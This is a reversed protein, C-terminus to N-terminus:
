LFLDRRGAGRTSHEMPRRAIVQQDPHERATAVATEPAAGSGQGRADQPTPTPRPIRSRCAPSRRLVGRRDSRRPTHCRRTAPSSQAPSYSLSSPRHRRSRGGPMPRPAETGQRARRDRITSPSAADDAVFSGDVPQWQSGVLVSVPLGLAPRPSRFERGHAAFGSRVNGDARVCWPRSFLTKGQLFVVVSGSFLVSTPVFAIVAKLLTVNM